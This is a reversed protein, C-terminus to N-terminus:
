GYPSNWLFLYFHTPPVGMKLNRGVLVKKGPAARIQNNNEPIKFANRIHYITIAIMMINM